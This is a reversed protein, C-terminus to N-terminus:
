PRRLSRRATEATVTPQTSTVHECASATPERAVFTETLQPEPTTTECGAVHVAVTMSVAAAPVGEGGVPVTLKPESATPALKLMDPVQVRPGGSDPVVDPQENSYVGPWTPDPAWVIVAV